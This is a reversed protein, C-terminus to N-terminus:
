REEFAGNGEDLYTADGLHTIRLHQRWEGAPLYRRAEITESTARPAPSSTQKLAEFLVRGDMRVPSALGLLHLITPALDVNGSPLDDVAGRRFDPGAAILTNHVDFESLSAHSGNGAKRVSDTVIQGPTGFRNPAANWRLALVVDPAEPANLRVTELPFAGDIKERAFIVGAFDSHQLWEVLRAVVARDHEVVYFLITGGNGVIMVQGTKPKEGFVAVADFGAGALATEFDISREITSFGHDSVV